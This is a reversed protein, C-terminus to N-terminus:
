THHPVVQQVQIEIVNVCVELCKGIVGIVYGDEFFKGRLFM